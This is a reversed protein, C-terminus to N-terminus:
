FGELLGICPAKKAKRFGGTIRLFNNRFGATLTCQLFDVLSLFPFGSCFNQAAKLVIKIILVTLTELFCAFVKFKNKEQVFFLAPNKFGNATCQNTM